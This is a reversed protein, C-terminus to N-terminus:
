RDLFIDSSAIETIGPEERFDSNMSDSRSSVGNQAQCMGVFRDGRPFDSKGIEQRNPRRDCNKKGYDSQALTDVVDPSMTSRRVM